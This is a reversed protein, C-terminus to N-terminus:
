TIRHNICTKLHLIGQIVECTGEVVTKQIENLADFNTATFYNQNLAQPPSSLQKLFNENIDAIGIAIVSVKADRLAKAAALAPDGRSAPFPVGDTVIIALNDADPRDGTQASFCQTRTQILAEPTNTTQGMYAIAKIKAQLPAISDFTDLAFELKVEESFVIAGIRTADPGITFAKALNSIFELQQDWNDPQNPKNSDRISGSSDIVFCLDM